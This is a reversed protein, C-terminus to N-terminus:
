PSISRRGTLCSCQTRRQHCSIDAYLIQGDRFNSIDSTGLGAMVYFLTSGHLVKVLSCWASLPNSTLLCPLLASVLTPLPFFVALSPM